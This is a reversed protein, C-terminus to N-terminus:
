IWLRWELEFVFVYLWIYFRGSFGLILIGEYVIVYIGLSNFFVRFFLFVVICIKDVRLLVFYNDCYFDM